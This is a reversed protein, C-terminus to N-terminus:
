KGDMQEEMRVIRGSLMNATFAISGIAGEVRIEGDEMMLGVDRGADGQVSILGRKMLFGLSDGASGKVTINKTNQTGIQSIPVAFHATHIIYDADRGDSVLLSLFIGAKESFRREGQFEALMVSFDEVDKASYGIRRLGARMERCGNVAALVGNDIHCRSWVAKIEELVPRSAVEPNRIPHDTEPKFGGFKSSAAVTSPINKRLIQLAADM